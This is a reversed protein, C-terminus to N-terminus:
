SMECAYPLFCPIQDTSSTVGKVREMYVQTYQQTDWITHEIHLLEHLQRYTSIPVNDREEEEEM